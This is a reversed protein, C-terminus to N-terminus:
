IILLKHIYRYITNDLCFKLHKWIALLEIANKNKNRDINVKMVKIKDMMDIRKMSFSEM